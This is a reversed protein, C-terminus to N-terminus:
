QLQFGLLLVVAAAAASRWVLRRLPARRPRMRRKVARLSGEVDVEEAARLRDNLCLIRYVEGMTRRNAPSADYWAEIEAAEAAPLEGRLYAALREETIQPTEMPINM